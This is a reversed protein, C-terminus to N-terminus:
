AGSSKRSPVSMGLVARTIEKRLALPLNQLVEETMPLTKGDEDTLNWDVIVSGYFEKEEVEDLRGLFAPTILLPNVGLILDGGPLELKVEVRTGIASAVSIGM